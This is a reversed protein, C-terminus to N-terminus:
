KKSKKDQKKNSKKNDVDNDVPTLSDKPTKPMVSNEKQLANNEKMGIFPFSINWKAGAETIIGCLLFKVVGISTIRPVIYIGGLINKDKPPLVSEKSDKTVNLEKENCDFSLRATKNLDADKDVYVWILWGEKTGESVDYSLGNGNFVNSKIYYIELPEENEPLSFILSDYTPKEGQETYESLYPIPKYGDQYNKFKSNYEWPRIAKDTLLFGDRVKVGLTIETGFEDHNNLGYLEGTKKDAVQFSQRSLFFASDVADMLLSKNLVQGVKDIGKLLDERNIQGPVVKQSYSFSACSFLLFLILIKRMGIIM